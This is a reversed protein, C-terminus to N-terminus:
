GDVRELVARAAQEGAQRGLQQRWQSALQRYRGTTEPRSLWAEADAALREPTAEAQLREPVLAQQCLINPLSVFESRVLRLARALHFTTPALRYYVVLPCELLFAELTVTGSAAVAVDAAALGTRTAGKLLRVGAQDLAAAALERAMREHREGTLLMMLEAEPLAKRLRLATDALLGVHRQLEGDRSGPLLAVVPKADLTQLASRAADRNPGSALEDALPHGVFRADLGHPQYLAPEFPFLTLLLDLARAIGPIRGARWAWVSPSVYHITTLGRKHLQRALGLNFDPADITILADAPWALIRQRLDKRLRILRPLHSLVETLGMVSLAEIDFWTDVGANRMQEGGIGALEIGPRQRALAQALDAALVDGSAEGAVLVLRLPKRDSV